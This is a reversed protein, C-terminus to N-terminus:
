TRRKKVAGDPADEALRKKLQGDMTEMESWGLELALTALAKDAEKLIQKEGIRVLKAMAVRRETSTYGKDVPVVVNESEDEELSTAYSAIKEKVLRHLLVAGKPSIKDPKPLKGKAKLKGFADDDMILSEVLVILEPSLSEFISFSSSYSIDYGSEFLGSEELYSFTQPCSTKLRAISDMGSPEPDCVTAIVAEFPIEVVDYQTYNRTIYGYRRLLDSRPLPGYDNYIEQGALIPCLAKMTLSNSEYFLRANNNDADANLMDALPVMGKPLAEDEDESAYGEEDVEKKLEAPEVDFAYAMILTGMKHLLTLIDEEQMTKAREYADGPYFVQAYQNVIPILHKRFAEDASDKGIKDRVASAQLQELEEPTWFMLTNFEQPLVGFYAAWNSEQGKEYEYLMVLILSLWPDLEEFVSTPLKSTLDSNEVSLISARPIRFLLEDEEINAIAVVGRGAQVSRLDQLGVKRNIEAGSATLWALFAQSASDFFTPPAHGVSSHREREARHFKM